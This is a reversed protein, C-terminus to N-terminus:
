ELGQLPNATERKFIIRDLSKKLEAAVVRNGAENLHDLWSFLEGNNKLLFEKGDVFPIGYRTLM